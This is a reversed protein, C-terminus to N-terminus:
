NPSLNLFFFPLMKPSKSCRHRNQCSQTHFQVNWPHSDRKTKMEPVKQAVSIQGCSKHQQFDLQQIVREFHQWPFEFGSAFFDSFRSCRSHCCGSYYSTMRLHLPSPPLCVWLQYSSLLQSNKKEALWWDCCYNMSKMRKRTLDSSANSRSRYLTQRQWFQQRLRPHFRHVVATVSLQSYIAFHGWLIYVWKIISAATFACM